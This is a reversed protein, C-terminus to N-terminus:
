DVDLERETGRDREFHRPDDSEASEDTANACTVRVGFTLGIGVGDSTIGIGARYCDIPPGM